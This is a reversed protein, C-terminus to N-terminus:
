PPLDDRDRRQRHLRVQRRPAPHILSPQTSSTSFPPHPPYTAVTEPVPGPVPGLPPPHASPACMCRYVHVLPFVGFPGDVHDMYFVHDSSLGKHEAAVYLENMGELPAVVHSSPPFLSEFMGIVARSTAIERFASTASQGLDYWWWHTTVERPPKQATAWEGVVRVKQMLEPHAFLNGKIVQRRQVLLAALGGHYCADICLPILHHTHALFTYIWGEQQGLYSSQFTPEGTCWHAADQGFYAAAFLGLMRGTPFADGSDAVAVAAHAIGALVLTSLLWTRIPVTPALSLAWVAALAWTANASVIYALIAAMAFIAAPTTILHLLINLPHGHYARFEHSLTAWRSM